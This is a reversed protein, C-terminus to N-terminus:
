RGSGPPSRLTWYSGFEFDYEVPDFRNLGSSRYITLENMAFQDGAVLFDVRVFDLGASVKTALVLMEDFRTHHIFDAIPASGYRVPIPTQDPRYFGKAQIGFRDRIVQVVRCKGDFMWFKIDDACRGDPTLLLDEVIVRPPIQWYAWEHLLVGHQQRMWRRAIRAHDEWDPREGKMVILNTGCGNNAKIAIGDGFRRLWRASPNASVGRLRPFLDVPMDPGLVTAVYDRVRLKDSMVPYIPNRDYLKRWNIKENHSRPNEFDPVYGVIAEFANRLNPAGVALDAAASDMQASLNAADKRALKIEALRAKCGSRLALPIWKTQAIRRYLGERTTM